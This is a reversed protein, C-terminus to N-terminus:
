KVLLELGATILGNKLEQLNHKDLHAEFRQIVNELQEDDLTSFILGCSRCCIRTHLLRSNLISIERKERLKEAM